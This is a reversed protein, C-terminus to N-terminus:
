RRVIDKKVPDWIYPAPKTSFSYDTVSYVEYFGGAADAIEQLKADHDPSTRNTYEYDDWDDPVEVPVM